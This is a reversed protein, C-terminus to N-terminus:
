PRVIDMSWAPMTRTAPDYSRLWVPLWVPDAMRSPHHGALLTAALTPLLEFLFGFSWCLLRWHAVPRWLRGSRALGVLTGLVTFWAMAVVAVGTGLALSRRTGGAARHVDFAVEKHEVEEALHWLFLTAPVVDAGRLLDHARRDVWRAAVFALAEFGAAYGLAFRRGRRRALAVFSRGIWREIRALAPRRAVLVRNLRQHAGHHATEQGIWAEAEARLDDPLDPLADRVAGAVYPEAHPMLLSVANAVCALEPRQPTWDPDLDAPWEFRLRRVTPGAPAVPAAPDPAPEPAPPAPAVVM